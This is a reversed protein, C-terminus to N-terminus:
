QRAISQAEEPQLYRERLIAIHHALHGPVIFGLAQVTVPHGSAIGRRQWAAAPLNRFLDISAARVNRFEEIHTAWPLRDAEAGAVAVDQDFSPLPADFGRAFWLARFVFMREADTVHSLVQRISWKEPAYRHTSTEESIQAFLNLADDRQQIMFGLCDEGEVLQIYQYALPSADDEAPRGLPITQTM